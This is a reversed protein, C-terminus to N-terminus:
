NIALELLRFDSLNHFPPMPVTTDEVTQDEQYNDSWLLLDATANGATLGFIVIAKDANADAFITELATMPLRFAQFMGANEGAGEAVKNEIYKKRNLMWRFSRQLGTLVSIDNNPNEVNSFPPIDQLEDFGECYPAYSINEASVTNPDSDCISDILIFGLKSGSSTDVGTYAHIYEPSAGTWSDYMDRSIQFYSGKAILDLLSESNTRLNNWEVIAEEYATLTHEM